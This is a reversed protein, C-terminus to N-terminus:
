SNLSGITLQQNLFSISLLGLSMSIVMFFKFFFFLSMSITERLRYVLGYIISKKKIFFLQYDRQVSIECGEEEDEIM